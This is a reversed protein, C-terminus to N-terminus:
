TSLVATLSAVGTLQSSGLQDSTFDVAQMTATGTLTAAGVRDVLGVCWLAATGTLHAAGDPLVVMTGGTLAAFIGATGTLDASGDRLAGLGATLMAEGALVASGHRYMMPTATLTATGGLTAADNIYISSGAGGGNPPDHDLFGMVTVLPNVPVTVDASALLVAKVAYGNEWVCSPTSNDWLEWDLGHETASFQYPVLTTDSSVSLEVSHSSYVHTVILSIVAETTSNTIRLNRGIDVSAFAYQTPSTFTSSGAQVVGDGVFIAVAYDPAAGMSDLPRVNTLLDWNVTETVDFTRNVRVTHDTLISVIEYMGPRTGSTIRIWRHVDVATFTYALSGFVSTSPTITGDALTQVVEGSDWRDAWCFGAWGDHGPDLPESDLPDGSDWPISSDFGARGGLPYDTSFCSDFPYAVACVPVRFNGRFFVKARIDDLCSNVGPLTSCAPNDLRYIARRRVGYQDQAVIEEESISVPLWRDGSNQLHRIFSSWRAVCSNHQWVNLDFGGFAEPATVMKEVGPRFLRKPQALPVIVPSQLTTATTLDRVANTTGGDSVFARIALKTALVKQSQVAPAPLIDAFDIYPEALRTSLESYISDRVEDIVVTAYDFLEAAVTCLVTAYTTASVLIMDNRIGDSVFIMNRGRQLKIFVTEILNSPIFTSDISAKAQGERWVAVTCPLGTDVVHLTFPAPDDTYPVVFGARLYFAGSPIDGLMRDCVDKHQFTQPRIQLDIGPITDAAAAITLVNTEDSVNAVDDTVLCSVRYSSTLSSLRVTVTGTDDGNNVFSGAVLEVNVSSPGLVLSVVDPDLSTLDILQDRGGWPVTTPGSVAPTRVFTDQVAEVAAVPGYGTFDITNYPTPAVLNGSSAVLGFGLTLRYQDQNVMPGALNLDVYAPSGPGATIATIAPPLALPMFGSVTQLSYAAPNLIAPNHTAHYALMNESFYVRPGTGFPNQQANVTTARPRTATHYQYATQGLVGFEDKAYAAVSITTAQDPRGPMDSFRYLAAPSPVVDYTATLTADNSVTTIVAAAGTPRKGALVVLANENLQSLFKTSIGTISSGGSVATGALQVTPFAFVWANVTSIMTIQGSFGDNFQQMKWDVAHTSSFAPNLTAGPGYNPAVTTLTMTTPGAVGAIQYTTAGENFTIHDGAQVDTGFATGAGTVTTIGLATTTQVTGGVPQRAIRITDSAVVEVVWGKGNDRPNTAGSTWVAAGVDAAVFTRAIGSRLNSTGSTILGDGPYEQVSLAPQGDIQFQISSEDLADPSADVAVIIPLNTAVGAHTLTLGAASVGGYGATLDFHEDDAVSLVQYVETGIMISDDVAIESLYRTMVASGVGSVTASGNVVTATGTVAFVHPVLASFNPATM